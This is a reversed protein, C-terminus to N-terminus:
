PWDSSFPHESLPARFCSAGRGESASGWRQVPSTPSGWPVHSDPTLGSSVMFISLKVKSLFFLNSNKFLGKKKKGWASFYSTGLQSQSSIQQLGWPRGQGQGHLHASRAPSCSEPRAFRWWGLCCLSPFPFLGRQAGLLRSLPVLGTSTLTPLPLRARSHHREWPWPFFPAQAPSM